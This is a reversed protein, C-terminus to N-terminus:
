EDQEADALLMEALEGKNKSKYNELNRRGAEAKLEDVTFAEKMDEATMGEFLLPEGEVTETQNEGGQEEIVNPQEHDYEDVLEYEEKDKKLRKVTEPQDEKVGFELGTRVNKFQYVKM